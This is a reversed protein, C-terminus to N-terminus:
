IVNPCASKIVCFSFIHLDCKLEFYDAQKEYVFLPLCKNKKTSECVNGTKTEM